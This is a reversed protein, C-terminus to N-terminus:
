RNYTELKLSMRFYEQSRIHIGINPVEGLLIKRIYFIKYRDYRREMSTLHLAKLRDSYSLHSIEPILCTYDYQVKEIKDMIPGSQPSWLASCYELQPRIYTIFMKRMFQKDRSLFSRCFWGIKQRAKKIIKDIHADFTGEHSMEIGLDRHTENSNIIEKMEDSFYVSDNKLNEDRGYQLVVFKGDNYRMNNNKAWRYFPEMEDQFRDMDDLSKVEQM